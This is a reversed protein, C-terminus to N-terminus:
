SGLFCQVLIIFTCCRDVPFFSITPTPPKTCHSLGLSFYVLGMCTEGFLCGEPLSILPSKSVKRTLCISAFNKNTM